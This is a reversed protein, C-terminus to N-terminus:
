IRNIDSDSAQLHAYIQTTKMDSHGLWQSIKYLSVGAIALRSAFTHRLVHPTVWDMEAEKCVGDFVKRFDYRIGNIWEEREPQFVYSSQDKGYKELVEKLNQNMPISRNRGSKTEFGDDNTVHIISQDLDFWEWKANAIENRRLGAYIGLAFILHANRGHREAIQMITTIEEPTLFVVKKEQVKFKPIGKCPNEAIMEWKVAQTFISGLHALFVNASSAKRGGKILGHLFDEMGKKTVHCLRTIKTDSVFTKWVYDDIEVTKPRKRAKAYEFFKEQFAEVSADRPKINHTGLILEEEIKKQVARAVTANDTGLTKRVRQGDVFYSIYYRGTKPPKRYLHTRM